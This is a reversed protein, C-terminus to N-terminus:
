PCPHPDAASDPSSRSPPTVLHLRTFQTSVALARTEIWDVVLQRQRFRWSGNQRRVFSDIYRISAIMLSRMSDEKVVHHALCYTTGAAENGDVTLLSQGNLHTTAEFQQVNDFIPKLGSRGQVAQTPIPNGPDLFVLFASDETFLAMQSACDRRDAFYAYKDILERIALRDTVQQATLYRDAM